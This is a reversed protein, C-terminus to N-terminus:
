SRCVSPNVIQQVTCVPGVRHQQEAADCAAECVRGHGSVWAQKQCKRSCYHAGCGAGCAYVQVRLEHPGQLNRCAPNACCHRHWGQEVQLGAVVLEWGHTACGGCMGTISAAAPPSPVAQSGEALTHSGDAGETSRWEAAM